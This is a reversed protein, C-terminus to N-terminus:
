VAHCYRSSVSTTPTAPKVVSSWCPVGSCPRWALRRSKWGLGMGPAIGAWAALRSATGFRAMDVGTEAVWVEAGRRDVGPITDLLAIAREYTLPLLPSAPNVADAGTM